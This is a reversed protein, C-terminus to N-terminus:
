FWVRFDVASALYAVDTRDHRIVIGASPAAMLGLYLGCAASVAVVRHLLKSPRVDNRENPTAWAYGPNM